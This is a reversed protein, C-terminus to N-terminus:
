TITVSPMLHHGGMLVISGVVMIIAPVTPVGLMIGTVAGHGPSIMPLLNRHTIFKAM